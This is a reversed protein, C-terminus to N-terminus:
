QPTLKEILQNFYEPAKKLRSGYWSFMEGDVLCVKSTPFWQKFQTIHEHSFPYPETSLFVFDPADWKDPQVEPYRESLCFNVLGLEVLISNIFTNQGAVLFPDKWIFYLASGGIKKISQFAIEIERFLSLSPEERDILKGVSLIMELSDDLTNVDSIWVPAIETLKLVDKLTNEEKNAIILDPQLTRVKELQINKTGGIRPKGEFWIKPHICFKTIGVVREGAGLDYLLETQSPVLSIIRQPIAKLEVERGLQDKFIM